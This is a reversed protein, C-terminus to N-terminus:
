GRLAVEGILERLKLQFRFSQFIRLAFASSSALPGFRLTQLHPSRPPPPLPNLFVLMRAM